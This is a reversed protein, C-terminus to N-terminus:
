LNLSNEVNEVQRVKPKRSAGRGAEDFFRLCRDGSPISHAYEVALRRAELSIPSEM